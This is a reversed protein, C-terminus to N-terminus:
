KGAVWADLQKQKEAVIKDIGAAKLKAIFEPLYKETDVSGTGLVPRYQSVVNMVAAIETKVSDVNVVFGLAKSRLASKNLERSKNWVEPDNGEMVYSLFMNGFLWSLNFNYPHSAPDVGDPYKIVNGEVKVYHKGEIGYDLLNVVEPDSYLLNLFEMAKEPSKSQRPVAWMIQTVYSNNTFTEGLGVEVMPMGYALSAQEATGLTVGTFHGFGRNAKLLDSPTEKVTAADKLIYGKQYWDRLRTTWDAFEKTQFLDAVKLEQGYNPLVGLPEGLPDYLVDIGMGYAGVSPAEPIIPAIGPENDKIIKLVPELDATSKIKSIDISYKDVLDKRMIFGTQAAFARLSPVGYIKGDSARTADLYEQGVQEELGQGYQDILEDLPTLQGTAAQVYYSLGSGTAMLDFKEGSQLM